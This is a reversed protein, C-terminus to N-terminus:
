EGKGERGEPRAARHGRAEIGGVLLQHRAEQATARAEGINWAMELGDHRAMRIWRGTGQFVQQLGIGPRPGLGAAQHADMGRGGSGAQGISAIPIATEAPLSVSCGALLVLEAPGADSWD